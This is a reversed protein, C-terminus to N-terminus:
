PGQGGPRAGADTFVIREDDAHLGRDARERVPTEADPLPARWTIVVTGDQEIHGSRLVLDPHADLDGFAHVDLAREAAHAPDFVRIRTVRRGAYTGRSEVVDLELAIAIGPPLGDRELACRVAATRSRVGYKRMFDFM